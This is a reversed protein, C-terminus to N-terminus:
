ILGLIFNAADDAEDTVVQQGQIKQLSLRVLKKHQRNLDDWTQSQYDYDDLCLPKAVAARDLKHM